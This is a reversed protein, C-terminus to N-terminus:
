YAKPIYDFPTTLERGGESEIEPGRGQNAAQTGLVFTLFCASLRRTLLLQPSRKGARGGALLFFLIL